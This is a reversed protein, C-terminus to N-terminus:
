KIDYKLGLKLGTARPMIIKLREGWKNIISDKLRIKNKISDPLQKIDNIINVMDKYTHLPFQCYKPNMIGLWITDNVFPAVLCILPIPNKDLFPEISVSTKWGLNWAYQLAELRENIDPANPEYYSLISPNLSTITFRFIIRDSYIQARNMIKQIVELHPKSVILVWNDTTRMIKILYYIYKDVIEPTIDHSSPFMIGNKKARNPFKVKTVRHNFEMNGWQKESQIRGFRLAM